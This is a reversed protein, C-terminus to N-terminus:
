RKVQDSLICAHSGHSDSLRPSPMNQEAALVDLVTTPVRMVSSWQKHMTRSLADVSKRWETGVNHSSGYNAHNVHNVADLVRVRRPREVSEPV